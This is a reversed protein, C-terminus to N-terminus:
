RSLTRRLHHHIPGLVRYTTPEHISGQPLVLCEAGRFVQLRGVVFRGALIAAVSDGPQTQVSPALLIWDGASYEGWAEQLRVWHAKPDDSLNVADGFALAEVEAQIREPVASVPYRGSDIVPVRAVLGSGSVQRTGGLVWSVEVGLAAAVQQVKELEMGTEGRFYKGLHNETLGADAALQRISRPRGARGRRDKAHADRLRDRIKDDLTRMGARYESPGARAIPLPLPM